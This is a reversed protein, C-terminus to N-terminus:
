AQRRRMFGLGALALGVLALSAPEPIRSILLFDQRDANKLVSISYLNNTVASAATLLSNAATLQGATFGSIAKFNDSNISLTSNGEYISEWVALQIAVSQETTAPLGVGGLHTFLKGLRDVVTAASAALPPAFNTAFYSLGNVISYGNLPSAFNFTQTLEVCYTYFPNSDFGPAGSLSGVFAGVNSSANTGQNTAGVTGTQFGNAHGTLNLTLAQASLAAVALAGGIATRFALTGM